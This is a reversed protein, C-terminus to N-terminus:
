PIRWIDLDYKNKYYSWRAVMGGAPSNGNESICGSSQDWIYNDGAYIFTHGDYVCVDGPQAEDESVHEWGADRLMTSVGGGNITGTYNYNYKNMHESSLIGSEYLVASVYTACCCGYKSFDISQEIDSWVLNKLSYHTNNEILQNMVIVCYELIDGGKSYWKNLVDYYGTQFLTWESKRRRELGASYTSNAATVPMSMYNTYLSHNFNANNNQEDFQDDNEKDWYQTYAQVFNLGNRIGLAGANNGTSNLSGTGCNYSRSVLSHIQYEELDLGSVALRVTETDSKIKEDELADVFEIDVEGGVETSYGAQKFLTAYGGNFIDIGYGVTPNGYGDTEIIYKTGDANTPPPTSHEWHRIYDKILKSGGVSAANFNKIDFISFDLETVGYSNGTYKYLIYRMINELNQSSSDKQLLYFFMGAGSVLNSGASEKRTSNPIRFKVDLLGVFSKDGDGKEGTKDIVDGRTGEEYESVNGNSTVTTIDNTIWTVSEKDSIEPEKENVPETNFPIETMPTDKKNYEITQESFWTKAYTVAAIPITTIETTETIDKKQQPDEYYTEYTYTDYIDQEDEVGSADSVDGEVKKLTKTNVTYNREEKTINTIVKDMLTIKIDSDKVLDAVASAFEPNQTIITLYILFNMSTTYQSIVSKYDIPVLSISTENKVEKGNEKTITRNFSAVVLKNDGDVSYYKKINTDKAEVKKQMKEYSIYELQEVKSLNQDDDKTRQVYVTGYTKGIIKNYGPPNTYLTQTVAQAEYFKRIYKKLAEKNKEEVDPDDYDAKDGMLHLDDLDIGMNEISKIMENIAEDTIEIIGSNEYDITFFEKLGDFVSQIADGVANFIGLVFSAIMVVIMIPGLISLAINIIIRKRVTKNKALNLADKAAGLYNGSAVNKALNAGDKAGQAADQVKDQVNQEQNNNGEGM